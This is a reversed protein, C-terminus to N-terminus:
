TKVHTLVTRQFWPMFSTEAWSTLARLGAVVQYIGQTKLTDRLDYEIWLLMKNASNAIVALPLYM